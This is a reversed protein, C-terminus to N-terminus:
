LIPEGWIIAVISLLGAVLVVVMFQFLLVLRGDFLATNFTANDTPQDSNSQYTGLAGGSRMTYPRIILVYIILPVTMFAAIPALPRRWFTRKQYHLEAAWNFFNDLYKGIFPINPEFFSAGYETEAAAKTFIINVPRRIIGASLLVSSLIDKVLPSPSLSFFSFSWDIAPYAIARYTEPVLSLIPPLQFDFIRSLASFTSVGSAM